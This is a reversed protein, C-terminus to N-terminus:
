NKLTCSASVLILSVQIMRLTCISADFPATLGSNPLISSPLPLIGGVPPEAEGRPSTRASPWTCFTVCCITRFRRISMMDRRRLARSPTPRAPPYPSMERIIIASIIGRQDIILRHGYRPLLTSGRRRLVQLDRAPTEGCPPPRQAAIHIPLEHFSPLAHKDSPFMMCKNIPLFDTKRAAHHCAIIDLYDFIMKEPVDMVDSVGFSKLYRLAAEPHCGFHPILLPGVINGQLCRTLPLVSRGADHYAAIGRTTGEADRLDVHWIIFDLARGAIDDIGCATFHHNPRALATNRLMDSATQLGIKRQKLTQSLAEGSSADSQQSALHSLYNKEFIEVHNAADDACGNELMCQQFLLAQVGFIATPSFEPHDQIIQDLSRRGDFLAM